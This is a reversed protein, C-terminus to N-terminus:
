ADGNKLGCPAPHNFLFHGAQEVIYPGFQEPNSQNNWGLTELGVLRWGPYGCERLLGGRQGDQSHWCEGRRSPPMQDGPADVKRCEMITCDENFSVRWFLSNGSLCIVNGDRNLYNELGEYMPISWYESHGNIIFVRYALLQEPERHLDVDTVVDYEYGAQELWVQAFRDARMLHSYDTPGGYLIYPGAAPWPMRLGVQYTGQGAAHKRYCSYAPPNGPSNAMGDTGCVTKLRTQARAFPASNYARWTNTATLLLIPAQKRRPPRRVIFTIHYLGPKGEWEFHIRGVYVGPKANAPLRYKHSAEWRCHYLDDAAFRLAHGRRPDREPEYNEFRPVAAQFSPGGIMWTAHNIIQGHRRHPSIDAVREGREEAFSWCALVGKGEAPVLAQQRFREAVQGVSLAYDYIVPMALDGDLFQDVERQSAAAALRLPAKPPLVRGGYPWSAVKEGDLWVAKEQGNWSGVVHYWRGTKLLGGATCHLWEARSNTGEGLALSVGGSSNLFLGFGSSNRFDMQGILAAHVDTKWPRVWCELTMARMPKNLRKAVHVYSGPHIPQVEPGSEVFEHLVLDSAPDDVKLGLRCVSLRYPVTSSVCFSITQGATVSQADAYAHVGALLLPRHPPIMEKHGAPVAVTPEKWDLTALGVVSIGTRKM